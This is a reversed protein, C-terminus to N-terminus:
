EVSSKFNDVPELAVKIRDGEQEDHLDIVRGVRFNKISLSM